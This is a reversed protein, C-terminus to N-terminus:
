SMQQPITNKYLEVTWQSYALNLRMSSILRGLHNLGTDRHYMTCYRIFFIFFYYFYILEGACSYNIHYLAYMNFSKLHKFISIELNALIIQGLVFANITVVINTFFLILNCIDHMEKNNKEEIQQMTSQLHRPILSNSASVVQLKQKFTASLYALNQIYSTVDHTTATISLFLFEYVLCSILDIPEVGDIMRSFEAQQTKVSHFTKM